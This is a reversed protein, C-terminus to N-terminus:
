RVVKYLPHVAFTTRELLRRGTHRASQQLRKRGSGWICPYLPSSGARHLINTLYSSISPDLYVTQWVKQAQVPHKLRQRPALKAGVISIHCLIWSALM